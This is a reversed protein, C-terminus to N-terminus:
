DKKEPESGPADQDGDATGPADKSPGDGDQGSEKMAEELERDMEEWTLERYEEADGAPAGGPGAAPTGGAREGREEEDDEGTGADTRDVKRRKMWRGILLGIEFLVLMPVALLTQSLPDPPTLVMAVVFAWVIVYPRKKALSAPDVVGVAVLLVLAVPVEFAVGFAFFMGLVIDLYASIDPMAQVGQPASGIFFPFAIPFVVFYAFAMGMYFLLTSSLLLPFVMRREHRYLGPAVFAWLQYLVFPIAIFLSLWFTLKIPTFFPSAVGTAIITTGQPLARLLPLAVVHYIDNAFYVLAAFIVGVSLVARLLRDRLEILHSLFSGEGTELPSETAMSHPGTM